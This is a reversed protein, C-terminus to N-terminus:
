DATIEGSVHINGTFNSEGRTIKTEQGPGEACLIIGQEVNRGGCMREVNKSLPWQWRRIRTEDGDAAEM